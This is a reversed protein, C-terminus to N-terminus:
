SAIVAAKTIDAGSTSVGTPNMSADFQNATLNVATYIFSLELVGGPTIATSLTEDWYWRVRVLYGNTLTLTRLTVEGVNSARGTETIVIKQLNNGQVLPNLVRATTKDFVIHAKVPQYSLSSTQHGSTSSAEGPSRSNFSPFDILPIGQKFADKGGDWKVSGKLVESGPATLVVKKSEFTIGPVISNYAM